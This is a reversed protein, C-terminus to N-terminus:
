GYSSEGEPVFVPIHFGQTGQNHPWDPILLRIGAITRRYGEIEQPSDEIAGGIWEAPVLELVIDGKLRSHTHVVPGAPLSYATLWEQTVERMKEDRATLYVISHSEALKKVLNICTWIPQAKRFLRETYIEAPALCPYVDTQYGMKSLEGNIDALTNCIDVFFVKKKSM